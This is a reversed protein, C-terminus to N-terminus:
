SNEFCRLLRIDMVDNLASQMLFLGIFLLIRYLFHFITHSWLSSHLVSFFFSFFSIVRRTRAEAGSALNVPRARTSCSGHCQWNFGPGTISNPGVVRRSRTSCCSWDRVMAGGVVTSNLVGIACNFGSSLCSSDETVPM